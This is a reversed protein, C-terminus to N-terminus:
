CFKAWRVEAVDSQYETPRVYIYIKNNKKKWIMAIERGGKVRCIILTM